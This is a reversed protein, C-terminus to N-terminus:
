EVSFDAVCRRLTRLALNPNPPNDEGAATGAPLTKPFTYYHSQVYDVPAQITLLSIDFTCFHGPTISKFTRRRLRLLQDHRISNAVSQRMSNVVFHRPLIPLCVPRFLGRTAPFSAQDSLSHRSWRLYVEVHM